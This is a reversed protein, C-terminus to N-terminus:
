IHNTKFVNLSSCKGENNYTQPTLTSGNGFHVLFARLIRIFSMVEQLGYVVGRSLKEQGDEPLVSMERTLFLLTSDFLDESLRTWMRLTVEDLGQERYLAQLEAKWVARWIEKGSHYVHSCRTIVSPSANELNSVEVLIKLERQSPRIKEGTPLSLFPDEPNCITSFPDLWGPQAGPDGDLVLWKVKLAQSTFSFGRSESDRLEKTFAGDCWRDQGENWSGWFEKHSLSNPFIFVTNVSVWNPSNQEMDSSRCGSGVDQQFQAALKRLAGSLARYCMTKGSGPHGVLLVTQDRKLAQYLSLANCLMIPDPHLGSEQLEENVATRLIALEAEDTYQSYLSPCAAAQFIEEFITCFHSAKRPDSIASLLVSKVGKIVAQEEVVAHLLASTQRSCRLHGMLPDKGEIETEEELRVATGSLYEEQGLKGRIVNDKDNLWAKCLQYLYVGAVDIVKKLLHLWSSSGNTLFEPFCLSDKALSFLTVLCCSLSASESFGLATLSVEAVLRYDPQALSVPRTALRLNEPVDAIHHGSSIIVCGYGFRPSVPNGALSIQGWCRLEESAPESWGCGRMASLSVHIDSLHQGLLSLTGQMLSDVADLVLWAGTQLAGLLMNLIVLPATNQSCQLTVVPQGLAAGLHAVTKSKGSMSLGSVFACKFSSLALLIGMAARDSSLTNVMIWQDPGLYEYGYPFQSGMIDVFCYQKQLENDGQTMALYSQGSQNGVSFRYKLLKHWEFSSELNAKLNLLGDIQRNHKITLLILAQLVTTCYSDQFRGDFGAFGNQIMRCLIKLKATYRTQLRIKKSPAPNLFAEEIERCWLAEEALLVCQLPFDLLLNWFSTLRDAEKSKHGRVQRSLGTPSGQGSCSPVGELIKDKALPEPSGQVATCQYTLQLMACQLQQELQILWAVADFSPELAQLFSVQEGLPGIVGWVRLQTNTLAISGNIDMEKPHLMETSGANVKLWCVGRFCKRVTSLLLSPTPYLFLLETVEGDSLFCLRPFEKRPSDLFHLLQNCIGEMVSLGEMFVALLSPGQFCGQRKVDVPQVISLVHPDTAINQVMERYTMDVQCFREVQLPVVM